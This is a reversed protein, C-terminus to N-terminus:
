LFLIAHRTTPRMTIPIPIPTVILKTTNPFLSVSRGFGADGGVSTGYTNGLGGGVSGGVFLGVLYGVILGVLDGVFLGVLVDSYEVVNGEAVLDGVFFGVM